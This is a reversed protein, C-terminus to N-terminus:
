RSAAYGGAVGGVVMALGAWGRPELGQHLILTALVAAMVPELTTAIAARGTEIRGLADYYLASSATLTLLSYVGMLAWGRADHPAVVRIGLLPLALALLVCAGFNTYLLTAYSGHRTASWRGFLTYAAYTAGALVGWGVSELGLRVAAGKAGTVTLWVGVVSIAALAVQRGTPWEGLMPGSAAMTFAPSLYLLAVTTTVGAAALSSQYALQFVATIAGGAGALLLFARWGPRLSARAFALAGLFLLVGGLVPRLLANSGATMGMGILVSAFIGSSGWLAAAGTAELYGVAAASRLAKM